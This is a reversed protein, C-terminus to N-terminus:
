HTLPHIVGPRRRPKRAMRSRRGGLALTKLRSETPRIVASVRRQARACCSGDLKRSILHPPPTKPGGRGRGRWGRAGYGDTGHREVSPKAAARHRLLVVRGGKGQVVVGTPSDLARRRFALTFLLPPPIWLRHARATAARGRHDEEDISTM